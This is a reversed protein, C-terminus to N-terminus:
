PIGRCQCLRQVWIGGVCLPGCRTVYAVGIVNSIHPWDGLARLVVPVELDTRFPLAM